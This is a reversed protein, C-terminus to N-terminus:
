SRCFAVAPEGRAPWSTSRGERPAIRCSYTRLDQFMKKVASAADGDTKKPEAGPTTPALVGWSGQRASHEAADMAQDVLRRETQASVVPAMLRVTLLAILLSLTKRNRQRMTLDERETMAQM